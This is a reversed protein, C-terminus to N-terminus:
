NYRWLTLSKEGNTVTMTDTDLMQIEMTDVKSIGATDAPSSLTIFGDDLKWSEYANTERKDVFLHARGNPDLELYKTVGQSEDHIAWVHRLTMLNVVTSSILQNEVSIYTVQVTDGAIKGGFFRDNGIEMNLTDGELTVLELVNMTTGEGIVGTINNRTSTTLTTPNEPQVDAEKEGCGNCASLLIASAIALLKSIANPLKM